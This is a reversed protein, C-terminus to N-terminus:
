KRWWYIFFIVAPVAIVARCFNRGERTKPITFLCDLISPKSAM